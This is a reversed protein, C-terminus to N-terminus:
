ALGERVARVFREGREVYGSFMDFSACAPSLLVCDGREALAAARAVAEELSAAHVLPLAGALAAEIRPADAGILVAARGHEALAPRLPTFDQGKGDGGAILVLPRGMGHIAALTAGVNTGKSDNYWDVEGKQAVWQTRHPLGAFARLEAVMPAPPLGVAEGLALAALANALNHRGAIRLEDAPLLREGGRALWARGDFGVVGYEGDRSRGLTFRLTRAAGFAMAVVAPDDANVVACDAGRYIRAKATEYDHLDAYRDMHDASVNLVVAAAAGLSRTTELQFSSLELVYLDPEREGLLDLAPTGLNGGVRTELGARAAMRGVLETVTSKGNSGSIAVVPALAFRAFLEIDGVVEVGAALAAAVAPEALSVGPSVVLLEARKMRAADFPGTLLEVTPLEAALAARGPPEARSDVVSVAVGRAALFRAVSLGTVGLGVVLASTPLAPAASGM